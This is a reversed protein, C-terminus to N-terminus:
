GAHGGLAGSERRGSASRRWCMSICRPAAAPSLVRDRLKILSYPQVDIDFDTPLVDIAGALGHEGGIFRAVEVSVPLHADSQAVMVLTLLLSGTNLVREPLPISRSLLIREM